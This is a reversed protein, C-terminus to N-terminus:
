RKVEQVIYPEPKMKWYQVNWGGDPFDKLMENMKNAHKIALEETDFGLACSDSPTFAMYPYVKTGALKMYKEPTM